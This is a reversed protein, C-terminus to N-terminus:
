YVFLSEPTLFNLIRLNAEFVSPQGALVASNMRSKETAVIM